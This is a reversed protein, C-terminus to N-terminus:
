SLWVQPYKKSIHTSTKDDIRVLEILTSITDIMTLANFECPKGNVQILITGILDVACEDFPMM